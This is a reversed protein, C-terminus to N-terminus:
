QLWNVPNLDTFSLHILDMIGILIMSKYTYAICECWKGTAVPPGGECVGTVEVGIVGRSNDSKSSMAVARMTSGYRPKVVCM